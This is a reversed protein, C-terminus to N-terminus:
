AIRTTGLDAGTLPIPDPPVEESLFIGTGLTREIVKPKPEVPAAEEDAVTVTGVAEVKIEGAKGARTAM